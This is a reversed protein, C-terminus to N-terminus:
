SSLAGLLTLAYLELALQGPFIINFQERSLCSPVYRIYLPSPLPPGAIHGRSQTSSSPPLALTTRPSHIPHLFFCFFLSLIFLYTYSIVPVNEQTVFHSTAFRALSLALYWFGVFISSRACFLEIRFGNRHPPLLSSVLQFVYTTAVARELRM